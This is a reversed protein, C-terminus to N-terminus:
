FMGAFRNPTMTDCAPEALVDEFVLDGTVSQATWEVNRLKLGALSLEVTDPQEALVIEILASPADDLERLLRVIERDTNDIEVRAARGEGSQRPLDLRFPFGIYTYGRSVVNVPNAVLRVPAAMGAGGIELLTLWVRDTRDAHISELAAASLNRM